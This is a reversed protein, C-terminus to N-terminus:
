ATQDSGAKRLCGAPMSCKTSGSLIKKLLKRGKDWQNRAFLEGLGKFGMNYVKQIDELVTPSDIDIAAYPIVRDPHARAFKIGRDLDEMNVLLCAMANHKTCVELFSKGWEDTAGYHTHSDIIFPPTSTNPKQGTSNCGWLLTFALLASLILKIKMKKYKAMVNFSVMDIDPETRLFLIRCYRVM